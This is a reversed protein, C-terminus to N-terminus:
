ALGRKRYYFTYGAVTMGFMTREDLTGTAQQVFERIRQGIQEEGEGAKLATLVIDGFARTNEEATTILHDPDRGVEGHSYLLMKPRLARQKEMSDLYTELDFGPPAAHPVPIQTGPAPVGLSEGSFLAGSRSDYVSLHHSAHGPSYV